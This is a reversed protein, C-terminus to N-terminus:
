PKEDNQPESKPIESTGIGTTEKQKSICHCTATNPPNATSLSVAYSLIAGLVVGTLSFLGGLKAGYVTNNKQASEQHKLLANEIIIYKATGIKSDSLASALQVFSMSDLENKSPADHFGELFADEVESDNGTMQTAKVTNNVPFIGAKSKFILYSTTNRVFWCISVM